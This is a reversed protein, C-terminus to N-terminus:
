RSLRTGGGELQLEIEGEIVVGFDLTVTRHWVPEASPHYDVYRAFFGGPVTFSDLRSLHEKYTQLDRDNSLPVPFTTGSYILSVDAGIPMRQWEIPEAVGADFTPQGGTTHATIFRNVQDLNKEPVAM